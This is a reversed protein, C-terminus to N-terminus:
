WHRLVVHLGDAIGVACLVVYLTLLRPDKRSVHRVAAAVALTGFTWTTIHFRTKVFVIAPLLALGYAVSTGLLKSRLRRDAVLGLACLPVVLLVPGTRGGYPERNGAIGTFLPLAPLLAVDSPRPIRGTSRPDDAFRTIEFGERPPLLDGTVAQTHAMVLLGVALMPAACWALPRLGPFRREQLAIFAIVAPIFVVALPKVSCAGAALFGVLAWRGAVPELGIATASILFAAFAVDNYAVPAQALVVPIALVGSAVVVPHAGMKRGIAVAGLLLVGLFVLHMWHAATPSEYVAGVTYLHEATAAGNVFRVPLEVFRQAAAWEVPGAWHYDIEDQAGPPRMGSVVLVAMTGSVLAVLVREHGRASRLHEATRGVQTWVAKRHPVATLSGGLLLASVPLPRLGGAHGLGLVLVWIALLGLALECALATSTPLVKLSADGLLLTGLGLASCTIGVIVAVSM